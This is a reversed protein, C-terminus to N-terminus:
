RQMQPLNKMMEELDIEGMGPISPMGTMEVDGPQQGPRCASIWRADMTMDTVAMGELPPTYTTNIQGQYNRTFDGTFTGNIRAVSGEVRCSAEFVIRNGDRRYSQDTCEAEDDPQVLLDQTSEDICTEFTMGMGGMQALSTKMQWLGPDPKPMDAPLQALALAGYGVTLAFTIASSLSNKM